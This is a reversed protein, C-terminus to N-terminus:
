AMSAHHLWADVGSLLRTKLPTPAASVTISQRALLALQEDTCGLSTRAINYQEGLGASFLLPDDSGLAVPIGADLLAGLPISGLDAVVGFPPYSTPCVELAVGRSALLELVAPDAVASLGHGIRQAGLMTVSDRVHWAPLYFGAHPVALLGGSGAIQFAQTFDEVRGRREDNSLGFGVVGDPAYRVALQALREADAPASGWSAALILGTSTGAMADLLAEVVPELGGLWSAYSTPDAQIELWGVGDSANDAIAESVVRAIDDATRIGARAADYLDQFAEWGVGTQQPSLPPPVSLGHRAALEVATSRRMSGTLHLHLNAKPLDRVDRM